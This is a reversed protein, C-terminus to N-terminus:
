IWDEYDDDAELVVKPKPKSNLINYISNIQSPNLNHVKSKIFDHQNQIHLKMSKYEEVEELINRISSDSLLALKEILDGINLNGKELKEIEENSLKRFTEYYNSPDSSFEYVFENFEECAEMKFILNKYKKAIARIEESPPSWKTQFSMTITNNEKVWDDVTPGEKGSLFFKFDGDLEIADRKADTQHLMFDVLQKHDPAEVQLTCYVMNAMIKIEKANLLQNDSTIEFKFM